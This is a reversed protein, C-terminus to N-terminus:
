GRGATRACTLRSSGLMLTPKLFLAAPFGTSFGTEGVLGANAHRATRALYLMETASTAGEWPFYGRLLMSGLVNRRMKRM